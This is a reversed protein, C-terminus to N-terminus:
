GPERQGAMARERQSRLEKGGFNLVTFLLVPRRGCATGEAEVGRHSKLRSRFGRHENARRGAERERVQQSAQSHRGAERGRVWSRHRGM